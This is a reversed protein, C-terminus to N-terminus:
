AGSAGEGDALMVKIQVGSVRGGMRAGIAELRQPTLVELLPAALDTPLDEVVDTGSRRVHAHLSTSGDWRTLGGAVAISQALGVRGFAALANYVTALSVGNLREHLVEATPHDSSGRLAVLVAERQSTCRLGHDTITCRTPAECMGIITYGEAARAGHWGREGNKVGDQQAKDFADGLIQGDAAGAM